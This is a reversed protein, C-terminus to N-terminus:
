RMGGLGVLGRGLVALGGILTALLILKEGHVAVPHPLQIAGHFLPALPRWGQPTVVDGVIHLGWGWVLVAPVIAWGGHGAELLSRAGLSLLLPAILGHTGARHGGAALTRLLVAELLAGALTGVVLGAAVLGADPLVLPRISAGSAGAGGLLGCVAGFLISAARLRRSPWSGPEDLDPWTAALASLGAAVAHAPLPLHPALRTSVVAGAFAGIIMHTQGSSM